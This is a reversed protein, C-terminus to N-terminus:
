NEQIQDYEFMTYLGLFDKLKKSYSEKHNIHSYLIDGVDNVELVKVKVNTNRLSWVENPLPMKEKKKFINM